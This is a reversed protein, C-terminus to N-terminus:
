WERAAFAQGTTAGFISVADRPVGTAPAEWYAGAILKLSPQTAAATGLTSIWLDGASQNQIWFGRRGHNAGCVNQASGGSTLTGSRDTYGVTQGSIIVLDAM